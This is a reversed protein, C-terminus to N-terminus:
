TRGTLVQISRRYKIIDTEYAEMEKAISQIAQLAAPTLEDTDGQKLQVDELRTRAWEIKKLVREGADAFIRVAAEIKKEPTGNTLDQIYNEFEQMRKGDALTTRITTGRKNEVKRPAIEFCVARAIITATEVAAQQEDTLKVDVAAVDTSTRWVRKKEVRAEPADDPKKSSENGTDGRGFLKGLSWAM